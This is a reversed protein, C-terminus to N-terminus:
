QALIKSVRRNVQCEECFVVDRREIAYDRGLHGCNLAFAVLPMSSLSVRAGDPGSASVRSTTSKSGTRPM